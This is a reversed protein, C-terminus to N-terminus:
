SSSPGHGPLPRRAVDGGGHLGLPPREHERQQQGPPARFGTARDGGGHLQFSLASARGRQRPRVPRGRDRQWHVRGLTRCGRVRHRPPPRGAPVSVKCAGLAAHAPRGPPFVVSVAANFDLAGARQARVRLSRRGRVSGESAFPLTQGQAQDASAGADLYRGERLGPHGHGRAVRWCTAADVGVAEGCHRPELRCAGAVWRLPVTCLPALPGGVTWAGFGAVGAEM